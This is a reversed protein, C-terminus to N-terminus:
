GAQGAGRAARARLRRYARAAEDRAIAAVRPVERVRRELSERAIDGLDDITRVTVGPVDAASRDVARPVSLDIVLLPRGIRAAWQRADIVPTPAQVAAVLLDIEPLLTPVEALSVVAAGAAGAAERAHHDSRSAILLRGPRMRGLRSLAQRGAQGAGVVLVTRTALSELMSVALSVGASAVSIVGRGIGTEARARGSCALAGAIVCDLSPGITGAARALGAARRIQGSIEAEGVIVSDLGCAVRCLHEVAARGIRVYRPVGPGSLEAAAAAGNEVLAVIQDEAAQLDAAAAYIEVRHCTALVFVEGLAPAVARVAALWSGVEGMAGALRERTGVPALRHNTGVLLVDRIGKM